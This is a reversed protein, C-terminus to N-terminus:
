IRHTDLYAFFIEKYRHFVLMGRDLMCDIIELNKTLDLIERTLIYTHESNSELNGQYQDLLTKGSFNERSTKTLSQFCKNILKKDIIQAM